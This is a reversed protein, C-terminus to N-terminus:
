SRGEAEDLRDDLDEMRRRLEDLESTVNRQRRALLFVYGFILAWFVAYGAILLAGGDVESGVDPEAAVFGTESLDDSTEAEDIAVDATAVAPLGVAAAVTAIRVIRHHTM